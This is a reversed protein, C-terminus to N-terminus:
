EPLPRIAFTRTEASPPLLQPFRREVLRPQGLGEGTEAHRPAPVAARGHQLATGPRPRCRAASGRATRRLRPCVRLRRRHQAKGAVMEVRDRAPADARLPSTCAHRHTFARGASRRASKRSRRRPGRRSGRVEALRDTLCIEGFQSMLMRGSPAIERRAAALGRVADLYEGLFARETMAVIALAATGRPQDAAGRLRAEVAALRDRIVPGVGGRQEVEDAPRHREGRRTRESVLLDIREDGKEERLVFQDTFVVFHIRGRERLHTHWIAIIEDDPKGISNSSLVSM